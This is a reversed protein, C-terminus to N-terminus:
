GNAKRELDLVAIAKERLTYLSRLEQIAGQLQHMRRDDQTTELLEHLIKIREDLYTNLANVIKPHNFNQNLLNATVRNM